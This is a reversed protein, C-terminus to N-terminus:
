VPRSLCPTHWIENAGPHHRIELTGQTHQHRGPLRNGVKEPTGRTSTPAAFRPHSPGPADISKQRAWRGAGLAHRMACPASTARDPSSRRHSHPRPREGARGHALLADMGRAPMGKKGPISAEPEDLEHVCPEVMPWFAFQPDRGDRSISLRPQAPHEAPCRADRQGFGM